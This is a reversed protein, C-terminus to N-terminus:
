PQIVISLARSTVLFAAGASCQYGKKEAFLGQAHFSRGVASPNNPIPAAIVATGGADSLIDFALIETALLLDPYLLINLGFPDAGNQVIADAIIMLGKSLPPTNTVSLAFNPNNIKPTTNAAIGLLGACGPTGTGVPTTFPAPLVYGPVVALPQTGNGAGVIEIIGDYNTDIAAVTTLPYPTAYASSKFAGGNQKTFISFGSSSLNAAVIEPISDYNLDACALSTLADPSPIQIKTPTGGAFGQYLFLNWVNAGVALDTAGDGTFDGIMACNPHTGLSYVTATKLVHGNSLFVGVNDNTNASVGDAFGDNNLDGFAVGNPGSGGCALIQPSAFLGNGFGVLLSVNNSSLNCVLLDLNGDANVDGAAADRPALGGTSFPGSGVFSGAGNGLHITYQGPNAGVVIVDLHHDNNFDGSVLCDPASTTTVTLTPPSFGVAASGPFYRLANGSNTITAADVSGDENYDAFNAATAAPTVTAIPYLLVDAFYGAPTQFLTTITGGGGIAVLDPLGDNNLDGSACDRTASGASHTVTIGFVGSGLGQIIDITGGGTAILFEPNGDVFLDVASFLYVPATTPISVYSNFSGPANAIYLAISNIYNTGCALDPFGDGSVDKMIVDCTVGGSPLLVPTTLISSAAGLFLSICSQFSSSAAVDPFGDLNVDGAALRNSQPGPYTIINNFNGLGDGFLITVGVPSSCATAVDLKGDINFDAFGLEDPYSGTPTTMAATFTANGLGLKVAVFNGLYNNVVIDLITDGNIDVLNVDKTGSSGANMQIPASWNGFGDNKLLNVFPNQREGVVLDLDGDGDLDGLKGSEPYLGVKILQNPFLPGQANASITFISNVVVAVM